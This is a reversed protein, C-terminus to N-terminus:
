KIKSKGNKIKVPEITKEENIGIMRLREKTLHEREKTSDYYVSLIKRGITKNRSEILCIKILNILDIESLKFSESAYILFDNKNKTSIFYEKEDNNTIINNKKMM